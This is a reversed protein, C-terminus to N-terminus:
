DCSGDEPGDKWRADLNKVECSFEEKGLKQNVENHRACLWKMLSERGAVASIPPNKKIDRRFDTACWNCPYFISLSELLNTMQTQQRENAQLPYYAATTHLFTWTSRGLAANDPPCNTRDTSGEEDTATSVPISRTTTSSSSSSSSPSSQSSQSSQSANLMSAFGGMGALTKKGQSEEGANPGKKKIKSIDAWSNCVKCVKGNEDLILGPPLHPHTEKTTKRPQSSATDPSTAASSSSAPFSTPLNM